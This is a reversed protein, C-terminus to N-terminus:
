YLRVHFPLQKFLPLYYRFDIVIKSPKRLTRSTTCDTTENLSHKLYKETNVTFNIGKPTLEIARITEDQYPLIDEPNCSNDSDLYYLFSINGADAQLRVKSM